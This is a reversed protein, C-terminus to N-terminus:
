VSRTLRYCRLKRPEGALETASEEVKWGRQCMEAAFGDSISRGPEVLRVEGGTAIHSQWFVDLYPWDNRDYLIDAGLILEFPPPAIKENRWDLRQTSVRTRWPWSNWRAFLLSPPAADAMVVDAGRAAAVTGAMGVGCGLDLVRMGELSRDVIWRGLVVASAWAEAWYPQWRPDDGAGSSAIGREMEYLVQDPDAVTLIPLHLDGVTVQRTRVSYRQAIRALLAARGAEDGDVAGAQATVDIQPVMDDTQTPSEGGAEKGM